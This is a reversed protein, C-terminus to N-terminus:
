KGFLKGALAGLAGGGEAGGGLMSLLGDAGGAQDGLLSVVVPILASLWLTPPRIASPSKFSKITSPM